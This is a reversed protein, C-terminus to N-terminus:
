GSRALACFHAAIAAIQGARVGARGRALSPHADIGVRALFDEITGVKAKM